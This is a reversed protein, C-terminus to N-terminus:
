RAIFSAGVESELIVNMLLPYLAYRFEPVREREFGTEPFGRNIDSPKEAQPPEFKMKARRSLIEAVIALEPNAVGSRNALAQAAGGTSPITFIPINSVRSQLSGVYKEVDTTGGVCVIRSIMQYNLDAEPLFTACGIHIAYNIVERDEQDLEPGFILLPAGTFRREDKGSQEGPLSQWYDLAVEIALPTVVPDNRFVVRWGRSLVARILAVTAEEIRVDLEDDSAFDFDKDATEPLEESSGLSGGLLLVLQESPSIM